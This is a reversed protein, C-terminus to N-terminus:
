DFGSKTVFDLYNNDQHEGNESRNSQSKNLANKSSVDEELEHDLLAAKLEEVQAPDNM